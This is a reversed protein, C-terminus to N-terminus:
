LTSSQGRDRGCFVLEMLALAENSKNVSFHGSGLVSGPVRKFGTLDM